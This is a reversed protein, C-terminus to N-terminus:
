ETVVFEDVGVAPHGRTGIVEIRITHEGPNVWTRNFVGKRAGTWTRNLSIRKVLVDDIFVRAWGFKPGVPANWTIRRGTFTLAASANRSTAVRIAGGANARGSLPRWTGAYVIAANSEQFRHQVM